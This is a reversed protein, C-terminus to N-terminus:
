RGGRTGPAGERLRYVEFSEVSFAYSTGPADTTGSITAQYSRGRLGAVTVNLAVMEGDFYVDFRRSRTRSGASWSRRIELSHFEQDDLWPVGGPYVMRASTQGASRPRPARTTRTAAPVDWKGAVSRRAIKVLGDLDRFVVLGRPARAGREELRLGPVAKGSDIRVEARMREFSTADIEEMRRLKTVGDGEASARQTGDFVARGQRRHVDIGYHDEKQWNDIRDGEGSDFSDVLVELDRLDHLQVLATKAYRTQEGPSAKEKTGNAAREASLFLSEAEELDGATYRAFALGNLTAPREPSASRARDLYGEGERLEGSRLATVGALELLATDGPSVRLAHSLHIGAEKDRGEGSAAAALVRSCAAFIRRDDGREAQLAKTERRAEEPNGQRVLLSSLMLRAAPSRRDLVLAQRYELAAAALDGRLERILGLALHSRPPKEQLAALATEAERFRGQRIEVLALDVLASPEGPRRALYEKLRKEAEALKGERYDIGALDVLIEPFEPELKAARELLARAQALDAPRGGRLRLRAMEYLPEFNEPGENEDDVREEHLALAKEVEGFAVYAAALLQRSRRRSGPNAAPDRLVSELHPIAGRPLHLRGLLLSGLRFRMDADLAGAQEALLYTEIERDLESVTSEALPQSRRYLVLLYGYAEDLEPDLRVANEFHGMAAELKPPEGDTEPMPYFCWRGCELEARARRKRERVDKLWDRYNSYAEEASRRHVISEVDAWPFTIVVTRTTRVRVDQGELEGRNLIRGDVDKGTALRVRDLQRVRILDDPPRIGQAPCPQAWVVALFFGGLLGRALFVRAPLAPLFGAPRMM